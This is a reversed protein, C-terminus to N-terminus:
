VIVTNIRIPNTLVKHVPCKKSILTLREITAEDLQKEFHLQVDFDTDNENMTRTVTVTIEGTDWGKRDAYMQLTIATCSALSMCMIEGPRPGVDTGGLEEPEDAIVSHKRTVLKTQYRTIGTVATASVIEGAM